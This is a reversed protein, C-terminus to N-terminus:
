PDLRALLRAHFLDTALELLRQELDPAHDGALLLHELPHEDAQEGAPVHQDLAHGPERLRERDLRGRGHEAARELAHLERGVEDRRIEDARADVPGVAGLELGLEARDEAVEQEGVLDVARRRLHLRRQELHHLLPLHRDAVSVERHGLGNRTSAVCFGISDSPVYGSGSACTSRKM